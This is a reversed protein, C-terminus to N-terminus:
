NVCSLPARGPSLLFFHNPCLELLDRKKPKPRVARVRLSARVNKPSLKRTPGLVIFRERSRVCTIKLVRFSPGTRYYIYRAAHVSMM